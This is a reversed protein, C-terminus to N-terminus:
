RREESDLVDLLMFRALGAAGNAAYFRGVMPHLVRKALADREAKPMADLKAGHLRELRQNDNEAAQRAQQRDISARSPKWDRPDAKVAQPRMAKIQEPRYVFAGGEKTKGIVGALDGTPSFVGWEMSRYAHGNGSVHHCIVAGVEAGAGFEAEAYAEIFDAPLRNDYVAETTASM